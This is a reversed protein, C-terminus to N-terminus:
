SSLSRLLTLVQELSLGEVRLGGPGHLVLRSPTREDAPLQVAVFSSATAAQLWRAVTVPTLGLQAASDAISGGQAMEARVFAVVRLRLAQPYPRGVGERPAEALARRLDDAPSTQVPKPRTPMANGGAVM